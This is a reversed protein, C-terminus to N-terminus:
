RKFAKASEGFGAAEAAQMVEPKLARTSSNWGNRLASQLTQNRQAEDTVGAVWSMAHDWKKHNVASM